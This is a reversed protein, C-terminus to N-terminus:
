DAPPPFGQMWGMAGVSTTAPDPLAPASPTQAQSPNMTCACFLAALALPRFTPSM